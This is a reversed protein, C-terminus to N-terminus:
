ITGLPSLTQLIVEAMLQYLLWSLYTLVSSCVNWNEYVNLIIFGFQYINVKM